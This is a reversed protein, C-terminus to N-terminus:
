GEKKGPPVDRGTCGPGAIGLMRCSAYGANGGYRPNGYYGMKVHRLLLDFFKPDDKEVEAAARGKAKALHARYTERDGALAAGPALHWDLFRVVNAERAGPHGRGGNWAAPPDPPILEDALAGLTEVEEAKGFTAPLGAIAPKGRYIRHSRYKM